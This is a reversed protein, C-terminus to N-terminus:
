QSGDVAIRVGPGMTSSIVLKKIFVGKSTSPKAANLAKMFASVNDYLSQESFSVKGCMFHVSGAKDNKFFVLGKKLEAITEAVDLTVTGLKKNPLLGRPGLIKAVKGLAVMMDPTAVSCEFDLWGSEIKKILDDSGVYDAGAALAQDAQEGKAFVAVRLKKGTGHPLVLSGRVAQEGKLPDIGLNVDIRVSEDFRAYAAQKVKAIGEQLSFQQKGGLVELAKKYKKGRKIM